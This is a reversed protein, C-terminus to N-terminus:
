PSGPQRSDFDCFVDGLRGRVAVGRWAMSHEERSQEVWGDM